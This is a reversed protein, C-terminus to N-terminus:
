VDGRNTFLSHRSQHVKEASRLEAPSLEEMEDFRKQRVHEMVEPHHQDMWKDYYRPPKSKVGDFIVYDRPYVDEWYKEIWRKGVAPRLSMRAFPPQLCEGTDGDVYEQGSLLKKQVYGAVYSASGPTVAGLEAIGHTWLRELTESRFVHPRGCITDVRRDLFPAGFLVAHYHPRQTREGYEGCAFYSVSKPPLDRRLDKVFGRIHPPHLSGNSPLNEDSYTLTAFWAWDHMQLEHM